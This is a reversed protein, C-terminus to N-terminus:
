DIWPEKTASALDEAAAMAKEVDVAKLADIEEATLDFGAEHIAQELDTSLSERFEPELVARGILRELDERSM